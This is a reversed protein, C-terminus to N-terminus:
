APDKLGLGPRDPLAIRGFRPRLWRPFEADVSEASALGCALSGDCVAAALQAAAATAIPGDLTTTVLCKVGAAQAARALEVAAALGGLVMPKLIALPTLEGAALRARGEASALSEDAAIPIRGRSLERLGDLDDAALPQEVLELDLPELVGLALRAQNRTWGGNPDLRLRLPSSHALQQIQKLERALTEAGLKLKASRYGRVRAAELEAPELGQLLANVPLERLPRECLLRASAVGRRRGELDHLAVDLACLAAPAASCLQAASALLEELEGSAGRLERAAGELAAGCDEQMETGSSPLPLAEGLGCCGDTDLIAVRVGTRLALAPRSSALAGRKLRWASPSLEIRELKV